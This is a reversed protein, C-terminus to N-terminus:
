LEKSKLAKKYKRIKSNLLLGYVFIGILIVWFVAWVVPMKGSDFFLEELPTSQSFGNIAFAFLFCMLLSTPKM